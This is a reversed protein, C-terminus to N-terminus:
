RRAARVAFVAGCVAVAGCLVAALAALLVIRTPDMCMGTGPLRTLRACDGDTWGSDERMDISDTAAPQRRGPMALRCECAKWRAIAPSASRCVCGESENQVQRSVMYRM